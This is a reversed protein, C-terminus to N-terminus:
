KSNKREKRTKKSKGRGHRGDDHSVYLEDNENNEDNDPKIHEETIDDKVAYEEESVDIAKADMEKKLREDQQKQKRRARALEREHREADKGHTSMEYYLPSCIFISSLCGTGVGIMLPLVFERIASSTMIFLPIMVVFTTLSTMISRSLTQNISLDLIEATGGKKIFRLNERVRDFIVITDNISYGVVTLIAAIFPNNVTIGFIAYAAFVIMVDHLVGLLASAGFKWKRFRLRIYILMGLAALGISKLANMKLEKGVSAGFHETALVDSETINFTKEIDKNISAREQSSLDENTKIIVENNKDGSFIVQMQGLNVNHRAMVDKVQQTSVQHGLDYHLMTGGTFDIGYNLGRAGAFILGASIVCISIIYYVKRHKIFHFQRKLKMMTVGDESLGFYKNVAFKRSGSILSMFLQTVVVATFISVIIGIMLTWAFGRVSSTGIQYMIVAAILTTVQSDIITSMARKFGTQTAVRITKGREIEERIRTFIIVNADVAMGISLIIGAIGSLTLVSGMAAMIILVLAIYLALAIDAAVGMIRYGFLMILLIIISGIIGAVISKTLMNMGIQATQSSASIETLKVPLSGGRILAALESAEDQTFSGSIECKGGSIVSKVNPHSIIENDLMIVIQGGKVKSGDETKMSGMTSNVEGSLAKKTAEEFAKAGASNFEVNVAYGGGDSATDSTAKKVSSGDLVFSQDAMVFKLQATKGIAKIAEDSNEAGPLEVRIRDGGEISVNPNKLGMQDVRNEIVAKTQEMLKSLKEGKLNTDAQLVVYVGGKIDLGLEIKDKLPGVKGPIGKLLLMWSFAIAIIVVVALIQKTRTKM